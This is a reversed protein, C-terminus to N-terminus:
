LTKLHKKLKLEDGEEYGKQGTHYTVKGNKDIVVLLPLVVGGFKEFVMGYKDLVVQLTIEKKDVHKKVVDRKEKVDVLVFQFEDGLEESMEILKPIEKACPVCWTAFFSVVLHKEGIFDKSRFYKNSELKFLSIPPAPDGVKLNSEASLCFSIALLPLSIAKILLKLM